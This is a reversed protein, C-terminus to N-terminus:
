IVILPDTKIAKVISKKVSDPVQKWEEDLAQKEKLVDLKMAKNAMRNAADSLKQNTTKLAENEEIIENYTWLSAGISIVLLITTIHKKM